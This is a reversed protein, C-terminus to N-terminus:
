ACQVEPPIIATHKARLFMVGGVVGWFLNFM